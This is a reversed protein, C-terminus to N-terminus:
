NVQPTYYERRIIGDADPRNQNLMRIKRQVDDIEGRTASWEARTESLSKEHQELMAGVRKLVDLIQTREDEFAAAVARKIREDLDEPELATIYNNHTMEAEQQQNVLAADAGADEILARDGHKGGAKSASSAFSNSGNSDM